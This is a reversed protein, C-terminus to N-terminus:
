FLRLLLWFVPFLSLSPLLDLVEFLAVDLEKDDGALVCV